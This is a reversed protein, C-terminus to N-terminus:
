VKQRHIEVAVPKFLGGTSQDKNETITLEVTLENSTELLKTMDFSVTKPNNTLSGLAQGNVAIDARGGIGDFAIHVQETEDLNTPKQFRRRFLIRGSVNGFAELVSCPMRVRFDTLLPSDLTADDEPVQGSGYPGDLWEYQWPGKLHMRHIPNNTM